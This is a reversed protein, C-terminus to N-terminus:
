GPTPEPAKNPEKKLTTFDGVIRKGSVVIVRNPLGANPEIVLFGQAGRGLMEMAEKRDKESLEDLERGRKSFPGVTGVDHGIYQLVVERREEGTIPSTACGGVALAISIVVLIRM